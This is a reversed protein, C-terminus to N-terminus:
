GHKLVIGEVVDAVDECKDTATELMEYLDRWKMVELPDKVQEFLDAVAERLLRDGVNELRNIEICHDLIKAHQLEKLRPIIVNIQEAQKLIVGALERFPQRIERIKYVVLHEAAGEFFDLVDDITSALEHIDERDIPTIFTKNLRAMIEHTLQDGQHELQKLRTTKATVDVYNRALEEMAKAAELLNQAAQEFMQFFAQDKPIWQFM